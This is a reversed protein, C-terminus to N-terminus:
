AKKASKGKNWSVWLNPALCLSSYTGIIMGITIPISFSLISTVGRVYAVVSIIIMTVVTTITTRISRKISQTCSINVLKEIDVSAMLKKNERIRDYVVITDNISCGLITLVVAVFNSNIEFGMIIFAGYTIIIDHVLAMISCIGSSWGSIRKFRLAIYLILIIASFVVAVICKIFFNRGSSAAVDTSDLSELENESYTELLANKLETQKEASIGDNSVVSISLKKKDSQFIEGQQINVKLGLVEETKSQVSNLDMEGSFSYTLMTGGKFEIAINLGFFSFIISVSILILSIIYFIKRKATFNYFKTDKVSEKSM